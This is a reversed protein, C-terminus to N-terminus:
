TFGFKVPDGAETVVVRGGSDLVQLKVPIGKGNRTITYVGHKGSTIRLGLRAKRGEVKTEVGSTLGRVDLKPVSLDLTDRSRGSARAGDSFAYADVVYGWWTSEQRRALTVKAVVQSYDQPAGGRGRLSRGFQFNLEASVRDLGSLTVPLDVSPFEYSGYSGGRGDQNSQGGKSRTVPAAGLEDLTKAVQLQNGELRLYASADPDQAFSVRVTVPPSAPAAALALAPLASALVLVGATLSRAARRM